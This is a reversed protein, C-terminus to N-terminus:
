LSQANALADWLEREHAEAAALQFCARAADADSRASDRQQRFQREYAGDAEIGDWLQQRVDHGLKKITTTSM